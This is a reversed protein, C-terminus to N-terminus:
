LRFKAGALVGDLTILVWDKMARLVDVETDRLNLQNVEHASNMCASNPRLRSEHAHGIQVSAMAMHSYNIDGELPCVHLVWQVGSGGKTAVIKKCLIVLYTHNFSVDMNQDCGCTYGMNVQHVILQVGCCTHQEIISLFVGPYALM